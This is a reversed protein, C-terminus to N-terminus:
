AARGLKAEIATAVCIRAKEMVDDPIPELGTKSRAVDKLSAADMFQAGLWEENVDALVAGVLRMMSGVSPFAGVVKARRKIEGNAREQVNNTRLRVHHEYPFDLYALADAEADELLEGARGKLRAIRETAQRYAARVLQPDREAFVAKMAAAAVAKDEKKSFWGAVSRELHVICRQWAAGQFVEAIAQVLGAHDDSVVCKVGKVGRKRLSRLFAKWSVASETDVVDFGVFRRSGDEGCAIATVVGKSQVHGEDRCNLYTADLWLYPFDTGDFRCANLAAVEEDLDATMRSVRSPSLSGFKLADAAKEIKRTSLGRVYVEKVIGVMARDVRSYPRVLEDPFYTGERLKPIRMTIEGLVTLLRRERYGNRRNGEGCIEDAQWDMIQNVTAELGRRMMENIDITGDERFPLNELTGKDQLTDM